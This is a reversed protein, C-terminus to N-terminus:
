TIEVVHGVDLGRRRRRRRRTRGLLLLLPRRLLDRLDCRADDPHLQRDPHGAETVDVHLAQEVVPTERDDIRPKGSRLRPLGELVPQVAGAEPDAVDVADDDGMGVGVVEATGATEGTFGPGLENGV